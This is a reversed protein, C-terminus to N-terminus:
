AFPDDARDIIRLTLSLWFWAKASVDDAPRVVGAGISMMTIRSEPFGLILRETTDVSRRKVEVAFRKRVDALLTYAPDTPNASDDEVFGQVILPWDFEGTATDMPPEAVDSAPDVGELISVLPLTDGEGFWARGRYVHPVTVGDGEVVDALNSQYGNGPTIEKLATTLARLVQLRFPVPDSM